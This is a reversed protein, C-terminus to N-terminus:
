STPIDEVNDDVYINSKIAFSKGVKRYHNAKATEWRPSNEPDQLRSFRLTDPKHAALRIVMSLAKLNIPLLIRTSFMKLEQSSQLGRGDQLM